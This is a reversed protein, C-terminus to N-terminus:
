EASVPTLHVARLNMVAGVPISKPVVRVVLEDRADLTVRGADFRVYEGWGGTGAVGMALTQGGLDVEALTGQRHLPVAYEVEVRYGGARHLRLRWLPWSDLSTWCGLQPDTGAHLALHDGIIEADAARLVMAGDAPQPILPPRPRPPVVGLRPAAAYRLEVVSVAPDPASAPLHLVFAGDGVEDSVLQLAGDALLRASDPRDRLPVSLRGDDPWHEV